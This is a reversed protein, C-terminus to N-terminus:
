KHHHSLDFEYEAVIEEDDFSDEDFERVSVYDIADDEDDLKNTQDIFWHYSELISDKDKSLEITQEHSYDMYVYSLRYTTTM